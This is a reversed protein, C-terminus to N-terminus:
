FWLKGTRDQAIAAPSARKPDPPVALTFTGRRYHVLGGDARAIWLVGDRDVLLPRLLGASDSRLVSSTTSDIWAFRVGDFRVLADKTGMWLYGAPTQVLAGRPSFTLGNEATWKAHHM